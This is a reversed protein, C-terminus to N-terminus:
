GLGVTRATVPRYGRGLAMGEEFCAGAERRGSMRRAYLAIIVTFLTLVYRMRLLPNSCLTRFAYLTM